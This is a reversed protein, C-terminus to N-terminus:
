PSPWKTDIQVPGSQPMPLLSKWSDAITASFAQLRRPAPITVVHRSEPPLSAISNLATEVVAAVTSLMDVFSYEQFYSNCGLEKTAPLTSAFRIVPNRDSGTSTMGSSLDEGGPPVIIVHGALAYPELWGYLCTQGASSSWLDCEKMSSWDGTLNIVLDCDDGLQRHKHLFENSTISFSVVELHPFGRRLRTALADAKREGVHEGALIHRMTNSWGMIDPDVLIITGVGAAALQHAVFAGISGCGFLLIKSKQITRSLSTQRLNLWQFDARDIRVRSLTLSSNARAIALKRPLKGQRFGADKRGKKTYRDM